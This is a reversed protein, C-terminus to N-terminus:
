LFNRGLLEERKFGTKEEVRDNVALFKGKGNVVVVPDPMLNFMVDFDMEVKGVAEAYAREALTPAERTKM